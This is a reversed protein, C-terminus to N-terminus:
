RTPAVPYKWEPGDGPMHVHRVAGGGCATARGVARRRRLECADLPRRAGGALKRAM